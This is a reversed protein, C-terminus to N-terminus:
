EETILKVKKIEPGNFYYGEDELLQKTNKRAFQSNVDYMKIMPLNDFVIAKRSDKLHKLLEPAGYPVAEDEIDGYLVFVGMNKYTKTIENFLTLVPKTSSIYELADKSNIIMVIPKESKIDQGNILMEKRHKLRMLIEEFIVESESVDLTYRQIQPYDAYGCLFRAFNDIVYIDTNAKLLASKVFANIYKEATEKKKAIFAIEQDERINVMVPDITGFDLGLPIFEKGINKGYEDEFHKRGLIEPIAPIPKAEKYGDYNENMDNVFQKMANSREIEKEGEFALFIQVEYLARSIEVLARGPINKPEMRCRDFMNSYETTEACTLCIHNEFNSMFRYGIGNTSSNTMVVSIGVSLGDRCIKTFEAEYTELYLEKFANFNDILLYMKPIENGGADKYASYSSVGMSMLINKRNEIENMMLKFLNKVKEDESALVVGGVHKMKEFCKLVMSGFDMIYMSVDQPSETDALTRILLQLVNTKGMQSTGIILTNMRGFDSLMLGQYQSDPDDYIGLPILMRDQTKNQQKSYVVCDLLPPLCINSLKQIKEKECYDHIYKVIADLETETSKKEKSNKKEYVVSRRGNFNCQLIKFKKQLNDDSVVAPAGSFASQFLEFIENNGVQLYARGPERIEAALPSKLVEKSDEQNQVKLCLKFKSNSWIQENVQGAPKQTALILHIGLSRGIRAASILEKMFEPQEAKLEAFEDVVIVLHPLPIQVKGEKYLKIYKDIHNVNAEAFLSQRKLLEAKISKLSRDIEKGDINTIAGILHPLDKFQNVMGGGKFDIIVFGIEYPHFLTAASLIYSQLIESKGSGTTGAVLGHPGHAKEHLNLSIIDNKANVGLPAAMSEYIRSNSWRKDLDLDEAAYINLLEYLTINKRLSSELSIEECYVPALKRVLREAKSDSINEIEFLQKDSADVSGFIYAKNEADTKIIKSCYLPINEERREVFIFTVNLSAAESIFKSVPHNKIGHEDFVFVVLHIGIEADKQNKLEERMTLEKFLYEFINNKSDVDTVVNRRGFDNQIHPLFKIWEFRNDCESLLLFIKVDGYYQRIAIDLIMNKCLEYTSNSEGIIGIANANKIELTIPADDIYEYEAAIQGPIQNLDDSTEFSEKEKNIIQQKAKIKGKGLYTVLFDEDEPLREFLREDFTDVIKTDLSTDYFMSQMTELENTRTLEIQEKKNEIYSTYEKVRKESDLKYQKNGNVFGLVSTVIGMGMSCVSFLVFSSSGNSMVGRVLVTLAIMGVAPLLNMVINNQPKTPEAPPDLITLKTNEFKKKVRTKRNFLPYEFENNQHFIEFVSIKNIRINEKDFYLKGKKYYFQFGDISIFDSDNLIVKEDIKIANKLVGFTSMIESLVYGSSDQRIVVKSKEGFQSHLVIDAGEETAITITQPLKVYWNYNPVKADFDIMFRLEFAENGTNTYCVSIIDGHKIETSYLKRMDGRSFYVNDSCDINWKNDLETFEIEIDGFFSEPNLRFECFSTTGLRVGEMDTPIEFEKYVTRNSIIVKYQYDM